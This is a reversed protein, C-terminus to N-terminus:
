ARSPTTTHLGPVVDAVEDAGLQEDIRVFRQLGVRRQQLSQQVGPVQHADHREDLLVELDRDLIV